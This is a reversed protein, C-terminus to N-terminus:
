VSAADQTNTAGIEPMAQKPCACLPRSRTAPWGSAIVDADGANMTARVADPATDKEVWNELAALM